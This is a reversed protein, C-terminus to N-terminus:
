HQAFVVLYLHALNYSPSGVSTFPSRDKMDLIVVLLKVAVISILAAQLVLEVHEASVM